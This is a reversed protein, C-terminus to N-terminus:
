GRGSRNEELGEWEEKEQRKGGEGRAEIRGRAGGVGRKEELGEWEGKGGGGRAKGM